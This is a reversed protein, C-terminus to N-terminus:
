PLAQELLARELAVALDIAPRDPIAGEVLVDARARFAEVVAQPADPYVWSGVLGLEAVYRLLSAAVAPESSPGAMLLVARPRHWTALVDFAQVLREARASSEFRGLWVVVADTDLSALHNRTTELDAM